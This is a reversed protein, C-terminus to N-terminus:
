KLENRYYKAITKFFENGNIGKNNLDLMTLDMNKIFNDLIEDAVKLAGEVEKIQQNDDYEYNELNQEIRVAEAILIKYIDVLVDLNVGTSESFEVQDNYIKKERDPQYIPINKDRKVEGVLIALPTRLMVIYDLCKDLKDLQKRIVELEM